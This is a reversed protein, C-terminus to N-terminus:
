QSQDAKAPELFKAFPLDSIKQYVHPKLVEPIDDAGAPKPISADKDMDFFEKTEAIIAGDKVPGEERFEWRWATKV